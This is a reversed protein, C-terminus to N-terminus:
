INASINQLDKKTLDTKEVDVNHDWGTDTLPIVENRLLAGDEMRSDGAESAFNEWEEEMAVLGNKLGM